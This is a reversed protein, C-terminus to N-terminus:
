WDRVGGAPGGNVRNRVTDSSGRSTLGPRVALGRVQVKLTSRTVPISGASDAQSATGDPGTVHGSRRSPTDALSRTLGSTVPTLPGSIARRGPDPWCQADLRVATEDEEIAQKVDSSASQVKSRVSPEHAHLPLFQEPQDLIERLLFDRRHKIIDATMKPRDPLPRPRRGPESGSFARSIIDGGPRLVQQSVSEAM